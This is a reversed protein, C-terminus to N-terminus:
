RVVIKGIATGASTQLLVWYAGSVVRKGANDLLNWTSTYTGRGNIDLTWDTVKVGRPDLVCVQAQEHLDPQVSWKIQAISHAPNPTISVISILRDQAIEGAVEETSITNGGGGGIGGGSGNDVFSTFPTIVGYCRSLSVIEEKIGDALAPDASAYYDQLLKETKQKAWLKPLFHYKQSDTEVLPMPYIYSVPSGFAEGDFKVETMGPTEYRGVVLMQVGKFLNPLPNPYTETVLAPTFAMTTNLLVPNRLTLYFETVTAQLENNAVFTAIGQNKNSLLTLLQENVYDGIGFCFISVKVENFVVKDHVFNVIEQTSTIGATAEGDTLFIIVNYTDGLDNAFHPIAEGFAGSINTAGDADLLEIFNLASTLNTATLPVHDPRFSHIQDDFEVINFKDGENLNQMIFKAADKAQQMKSGDMSGSRDIILTFVKDIVDANPNPAPEAIFACFGKGYDDCVISDQFYNSFAFLGLDSASLEYEIKYNKNAPAASLSEVVLGNYASTTILAAPFQPMALTTILRSSYLEFSISQLDLPTTQILAYNNPYNYSVVGFRYPLLEVYTLRVAIMKGAQVEDKISFYLPFLGLYNQLDANLTGGGQGGGGPLSTDQPASQFDANYWISDLQWSLATASAGAPMPFGYKFATNLDTQNRFWQTSTTIAIQNEVRVSVESRVLTFYKAEDANVIAVGNALLSSGIVSFFLFLQLFLPRLM